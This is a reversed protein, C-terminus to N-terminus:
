QTLFMLAQTQNVKLSVASPSSRLNGSNSPLLLQDTYNLIAGAVCFDAPCDRKYQFDCKESLRECGGDVLDDRIDIFHLPASWGMFHRIEDAWDAVKALPSMDDEPEVHKLLSQVWEKTEPRLRMWALNAVIEHGLTGWASTEILQTVCVLLFLFLSHHLRM